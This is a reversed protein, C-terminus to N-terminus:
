IECCSFRGADEDLAPGIFFQIRQQGIAIGVHGKRRSPGICSILTMLGNFQQGHGLRIARRIILRVDNRGCVAVDGICVLELPPDKGKRVGQAIRAAQGNSEAQGLLPRRRLLEKLAEEESVAM